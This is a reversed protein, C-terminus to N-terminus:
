NQCLDINLNKLDYVRWVDGVPLMPVLHLFLVVLAHTQTSKISSRKEEKVDKVDRKSFDRQCEREEILNLTPNCLGGM